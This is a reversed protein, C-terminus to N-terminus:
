SFSSAHAQRHGLFPRSAASMRSSLQNPSTLWCVRTNQCHHATSHSENVSRNLSSSTYKEGWIIAWFWAKLTLTIWVQRDTHLLCVLQFSHLHVTRNRPCICSPPQKQKKNRRPAIFSFSNLDQLTYSLGPTAQRPGSGASHMTWEVQAWSGDTFLQHIQCGALWFGPSEISKLPKGLLVSPQLM